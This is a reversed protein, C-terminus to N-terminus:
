KQMTKIDLTGSRMAFFLRADAPRLFELYGQPMLSTYPPLNSTKSKCSNEANLNKLAYARVNSHVVAKWKDKSMSVIEEDTHGIGYKSRLAYVENFWNKEFLYLKQQEYNERVPDDAELSLIHYLFQLQNIHINYEIPLLGLELYVICNATSTPTHLIRKLYKLQVVRLRSLSEATINNWAGSNFLVVPIFM